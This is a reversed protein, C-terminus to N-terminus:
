QWASALTRNCTWGNQISTKTYLNRIVTRYRRVNLRSDYRNDQATLCSTKVALDGCQGSANDGGGSYLLIFVKRLASMLPCSSRLFALSLASSSSSSSLDFWNLCCRCAHLSLCGFCTAMSSCNCKFKGEAVSSSEKCGPAAGLGDETKPADGKVGDPGIYKVQLAAVCWPDWAGFM